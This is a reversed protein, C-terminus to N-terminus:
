VDATESVTTQAEQESRQEAGQKSGQKAEQQSEQKSSEKPREKSYQKVTEPLQGAWDTIQHLIVTKDLKDTATAPKYPLDVFANITEVSLSQRNTQKLFDLWETQSLQGLEAEDVYCLGLRRMINQSKALWRPETSHKLQELEAIAYRAFRYHRKKLYAKVILLIAIITVLGIIIWWGPALPWWSVDNPLHVDRLQELLQAQEPNAKSSEAAM